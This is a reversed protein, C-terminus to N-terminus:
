DTEETWNTITTELENYFKVMKDYQNRWEIERKNWYNEMKHIKEHSEYLQNKLESNEKESRELLLDVKNLKDQFKKKEKTISDLSVQTLKFQKELEKFNNDRDQQNEKLIDVEEFLKEIIEEKKVLESKYNEIMHNPQNTAM